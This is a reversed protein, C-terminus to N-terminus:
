CLRAVYARVREWARTRMPQRACRCLDLGDGAGCKGPRSCRCCTPRAVARAIAGKDAVPRARLTSGTHTLRKLMIRRFRGDGQPLGPSRDARDPGRGRGGRIASWMTAASWTSSSTLARAAPRPRPRRSSIRPGTTSRPRRRAQPLRRMRQSGATAIVNAGRGPWRSQPLASGSTGGHVLLTEGAKLGGREFVNDVGHLVDRAHRGGRHRCARRSRCASARM